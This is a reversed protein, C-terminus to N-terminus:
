KKNKYVENRAHFGDAVVTKDINNKDVSLPAILVSPVDKKGNNMTGTKAVANGKALQIAIEAARGALSKIPKYVTMSQTGEVIRQCAALDADQGTVLVKDAIKQQKLASIAGGATGDNSAVVVQVDNSMKSLINETHKLAESPQWDRAWADLVVKIEGRDIAPKLAIMQGKRVLTANFDTPAGGILVYNGKKVHSLAYAGQLRGVEVPDFTVYMDVDANQILRDYSIVKKGAKHAAEVIGSAAVSNHPVVVLIDVNQTLLNEVQSFQLSDNGNAAQVLVEAGLEQARKVFLDRDRQWREEKLTDMAFGIKIKKEASFAQSSFTLMLLAVIATKFM